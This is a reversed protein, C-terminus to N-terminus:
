RSSSGLLHSSEQQKDKLDEQLGSSFAKPKPMYNPHLTQTSSTPEHYSLTSFNITTEMKKEMIGM